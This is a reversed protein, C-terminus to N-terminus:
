PRPAAWIATFRCAPRKPPPAVIPVTVAILPAVSYTVSELPFVTLIVVDAADLTVVEAPRIKQVEVFPTAPAAFYGTQLYARIADVSVNRTVGHASVLAPM